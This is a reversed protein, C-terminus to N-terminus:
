IAFNDFVLLEGDQGQLNKMKRELTNLNATSSHQPETTTTTQEPTDYLEPSFHKTEEFFDANEPSFLSGETPRPSRPAVVDDSMEPSIANENVNAIAHATDVNDGDFTTEEFGFGTMHDDVVKQTTKHNSGHLSKAFRIGAITQFWTRLRVRVADNLAVFGGQYRLILERIAKLDAPETAIANESKVKNLANDIVKFGQNRIAQACAKRQSPTLIIDVQISKMRIATYLEFLCWARKVYGPDDWQELMPLVRGISMVRDGFEASLQDPSLVDAIRHQNLCLSCIWIYTQYPDRGANFTWDSLADVVDQVKYGWSYSLLANAIGIDSEGKLTDVYAAGVLGDRPCMVQLGVPKAYANVMHYIKADRAVSIDELESLQSSVANLVNTIFTTSLHHVSPGQRTLLEAPSLVTTSSRQRRLKKDRIATEDEFGGLYIADDYLKSFAPRNSAQTSLCPAILKEHVEPPCRVDDLAALKAGLLVKESVENGKLNDYPIEGGSFVEWAFVGYSWIDSHRSYQQTSLVEPAAWRVDPGHSNGNPKGKGEEVDTDGTVTAYLSETKPTIPASTYLVNQHVRAGPMALTPQQKAVVNDGSHIADGFHAVKCVMSVDLLVHKAQVSRLIVRRASIYELARAVEACFTLKTQISADAGSTTLYHLVSDNDCFSQVIMVSMDRPATVVGILSIINRHDFLALLAAEKLLTNRAEEEQSSHSSRTSKVAVIVKLTLDQQIESLEGKFVDTFKGSGMEIEHLRLINNRMIEKPVRPLIAVSVSTIHFMSSVVMASPDAQLDDNLISVDRSFDEETHRRRKNYVVVVENIPSRGLEVREEENSYHFRDRMLSAVAHKLGDVEAESPQAHENGVRTVHVSVGVEGTKINASATLGMEELMKEQIAKMDVPKRKLRYMHVLWLVVFAVVGVIVFSSTSVVASVVAAGDCNSGSFGPDCNCSFSEDFEITDIAQANTACQQGGPGYASVATDSKSFNFTMAWLKVRTTGPTSAYLASQLEEMVDGVHGLLEGTAGEIFFGPPSPDLEFVITSVDIVDGATTTANTFSVPAIRYSLGVAWKSRNRSAYTIGATEIQQVGVLVLQPPAIYPIPPVGFECNDGTVAGDCMCRFDQDFEVDDVATGTACAQSNPGYNAIATDRLTFNFTMNWLAFPAAGPFTAYLTTTFPPLASTPRVLVEGTEADVFVGPPSPDLEFRVDEVAITTTTTNSVARHQRRAKTITGEVSSLNVPAVRYWQAIAWKTRNPLTNQISSDSNATPTTDLLDYFQIELPPLSSTTDCNDGEFGAGCDCVFQLDYLVVDIATGYGCAKGNPGNAPNSVDSPLTDFAWVGLVISRGSTSDHAIISVVASYTTTPLVQFAGTDANIFVDNRALLEDSEVVIDFTVVGVYGELYSEIPKSITYSYTDHVTLTPLSGYGEEGDVEDDGGVQTVNLPSTQRFTPLSIVQFDRTALTAVTGSGDVAIYDVVYSGIAEPAGTIEGTDPNINIGGPSSTTLKTSSNSGDPCLMSVVYTGGVDAGDYPNAQVVLIYAGADLPPTTMNSSYSLPCTEFDPVAEAERLYYDDDFDCCSEDGDCGACPDEDPIGGERTARGSVFTYGTDSKQYIALSAGFWSDCADFVFTSGGVAVNFSLLSERSQFLYTCGGEGFEGGEGGEGCFKISFLNTSLPGRNDGTSTHGCALDVSDDEHYRLGFSVHTAGENSFGTLTEDKPRLFDMPDVPLAVSSYLPQNNFLADMATHLDNTTNSTKFGFPPKMCTAYEYNIFPTVSQTTTVSTTLTSTATSTATTVTSTATTTATTTATPDPPFPTQEQFTTMSVSSFTRSTHTQSTVSTETTATMSTQTKTAFTSSVFTSSVTTTAPSTVTTSVSTTATSTGTTPREYSATVVYGVSCTACMMTSSEGDDPCMKASADPLVCELPNPAYKFDKQHICVGSFGNGAAGNDIHSILNNSVDLFSLSRLDLFVGNFLATILNNALVLLSLRTLNDFVSLELSTLNNDNLLLYRLATMQKLCRGDIFAISNFGVDLNEIDVMSDFIGNQLSTIANNSLDLFTVDVLVDFVGNQLSTIANYSVDLAYVKVFDFIDSQLTTITNNSLDLRNMRTLDATFVGQLIESLINDNLYLSRLSTMDVFSGPAVVSIKNGSLDITSVLPLNTLMGGDIHTLDNDQLYLSRVYYVRRQIEENYIGATTSAFMDFVGNAVTRISQENLYMSYGFRSTAVLGTCSKVVDFEITCSRFERVDGKVALTCVMSLTLLRFFFTMVM